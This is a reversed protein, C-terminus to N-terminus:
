LDASLIDYAKGLQIVSLAAHLQEAHEGSVRCGDYMSLTHTRWNSTPCRDRCPVRILVDLVPNRPQKARATNETAISLQLSECVCSIM